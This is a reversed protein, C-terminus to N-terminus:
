AVGLGRGAPCRCRGRGALGTANWHSVWRPKLGAVRALEEQSWGCATRTERILDADVRGEVM